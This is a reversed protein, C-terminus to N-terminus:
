SDESESETDQSRSYDAKRQELFDYIESYECDPLNQMKRIYNIYCWLTFDVKDQPQEIFRPLIPIVDVAQEVARTLEGFGSLGSTLDNKSLQSPNIRASTAQKQAADAWKSAEKLDGRATAFEEKVRFRCYTILAETHLATYEPYSARLQNYKRDNAILEEDTYGFGYTETFKYRQEPSLKYVDTREVAKDNMLKEESETFMSDDWTFDRYQHMAIDKWYKGIIARPEDYKNANTVFVHHIYPRDLQQLTRKLNDMDIASKEENLCKEVVCAKCYPMLGSASKFSKYFETTRKETNCETCTIKKIEPKEKKPVKITSLDKKRSM